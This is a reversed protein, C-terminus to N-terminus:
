YLITCHLFALGKKIGGYKASVDTKLKQGLIACLQLQKRELDIGIEEKVERRAVGKYDIEDVDFGGGTIDWLGNDQRKIFLHKREIEISTFSGNIMVSIKQLLVINSLCFCNNCNKGFPM